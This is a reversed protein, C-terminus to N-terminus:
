RAAAVLGRIADGLPPAAWDQNGLIVVIYGRDLYIELQSSVGTFFGEHGVIRGAHTNATIMFGAGYDNPTQAPWLLQLSAPSVLKGAMLAQAFRHLDHVTSFGGGAPSGRYVYDLTNERWGWPSQPAWGYGIALNPVPEDLAFAATDAMGAPEFVHRRVYDFYTEGSIKEVIAGALLMGTNSYQYRTGPPFAPTESRVLRKYDDLARFARPSRRFEAGLFSSLGSTHTLLHRVTIQRSVDAPLWSDDLYTGVPQDLSVKGAEVLQMVAVATFMKDMSGLNLKSEATIPAAYRRNAQGCGSAALVVDGKAVLVAGSFVGTACGQQMLLETQRGIASPDFFPKARPTWYPAPGPDFEAVRGGESLTFTVGHLAGGAGRVLGVVHVLDTMRVEVLELPARVRHQQAFYEVFASRPVSDAYAKVSHETRFADAAAEGSDNVAAVYARMHAETERTVPPIPLIAAAPQAVLLWALTAAWIQLRVM